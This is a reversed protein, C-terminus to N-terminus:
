TMGDKGLAEVAEWGVLTAEGHRAMEDGGVGDRGM